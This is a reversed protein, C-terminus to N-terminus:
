PVSQTVDMDRRFFVSKKIRWGEAGRAYVDDYHGYGRMWAYSGDANQFECYNTLRWHGRAADQGTLAIEPMHGHHVTTVSRMAESVFAVLQERGVRATGDALIEADPPVNQITPDAYIFELDAAFVDIWASWDKADLLRFYRAKLNKIEELDLLRRVPEPDLDKPTM